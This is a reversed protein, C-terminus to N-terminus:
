GVVGRREGVLEGLGWAAVVRRARQRLPLEKAFRAIHSLQMAQGLPVIGRAYLRHGNNANLFYSAPTLDM